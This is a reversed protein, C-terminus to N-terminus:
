NRIADEFEGRPRGSSRTSPSFCRHARSRDRTRDPGNQFRSLGSMLRGYFISVKFWILIDACDRRPSDKSGSVSIMPPSWGVTSGGPRGWRRDIKERHLRKRFVNKVSESRQRFSLCSAVTQIRKKPFRCSNQFIRSRMSALSDRRLDQNKSIKYVWKSGTKQSRELIKRPTLIMPLSNSFTSLRCMLRLCCIQGVDHPSDGPRSYALSFALQAVLAVLTPCRASPLAGYPWEVMQGSGAQNTAIVGGEVWEGAWKARESGHAGVM